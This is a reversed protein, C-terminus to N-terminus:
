LSGLKATGQIASHSRVRVERGARERPSFRPGDQRGGEHQGLSRAGFNTAISNSSCSNKQNGVHIGAPLHLIGCRRTHPASTQFDAAITKASVRSSRHTKQEYCEMCDRLQKTTTFRFTFLAVRVLIVEGPSLNATGFTTLREKWYSGRQVTLRDTITANFGPM